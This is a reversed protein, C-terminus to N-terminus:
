ASKVTIKKPKDAEARPLQVHLIGNNFLAEVGDAEVTYPLQLTRSFKGYGRERRHYRTGEPVDDAKREGSLTLSDGVVSIDIDDPSFGPLEATLVLGDENTWVNLAPYTGARRYSM